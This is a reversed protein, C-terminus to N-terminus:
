VERGTKLDQGDAVLCYRDDMVQGCQARARM